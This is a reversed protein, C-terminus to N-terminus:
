AALAKKGPPVVVVPCAAKKLVGSATGGVVLRRLASRGHAGVVIYRAAQAEAHEVICRIPSGTKCLTEVSIGRKMLRRQVLHLQARAVREVEATMDEAAGALPALESALSPPKVVHLLVVRGEFSRALRIAEDIVGRSARSFDIPALVTNM